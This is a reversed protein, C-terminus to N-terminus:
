GNNRQLIDQAVEDIQALFQNLSVSASNDVIHTAISRVDTANRETKFLDKQEVAVIVQELSPLPTGLERAKACLKKWERDARDQLPAEIYIIAVRGPLAQKMHLGLPARYLSELSAFSTQETQLTNAFRNLFEDFAQAPQMSYLSEFHDPTLGVDPNIGRARMMEYETHIIKSRRLGRQQLRKGATTKGCESLGGLLVLGHIHPYLSTSMSQGILLISLSVDSSEISAALNQPASELM